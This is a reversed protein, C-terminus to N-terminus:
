LLAKLHVNKQSLFFKQPEFNQLMKLEYPSLLIVLFSHQQLNESCLNTQSLNKKSGIWFRAGALDM